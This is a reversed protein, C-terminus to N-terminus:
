KDVTLIVVNPRLNSAVPHYDVVFREENYNLGYHEKIYELSPPYFGEVAYCHLVDRNIAAELSEKQKEFTTNSVSDVLLFMAILTVPALIYLLKIRNKRSDNKTEKTIFRNM